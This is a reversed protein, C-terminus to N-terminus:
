LGEQIGTAAGSILSARGRRRRGLARKRQAEQTELLALEKEKREEARQQAASPGPRRSGM